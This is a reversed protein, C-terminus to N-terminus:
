LVFIGTGNEYNELRSNEGIVLYNDVLMNESAVITQGKYKEYQTNNDDVYGAFLVYDSSNSKKTGVGVENITTTTPANTKAYHM